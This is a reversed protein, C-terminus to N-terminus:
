LKLVDGPVLSTGSILNPTAAIVGIVPFQPKIESIVSFVSLVIAAGAMDMKMDQM